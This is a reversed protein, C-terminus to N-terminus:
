SRLSSLSGPAAQFPNVVLIDRFSQAHGLDESLLYSCGAVRAAGLILADWWSVSYDDQFLWAENIVEKGIPVPSWSEFLNVRTRAVEPPLAQPKRTVTNYFESLVQYSLRGRGGSWLVSLWAAAREQKKPFRSDHYHVLVNTDVFVLDSM